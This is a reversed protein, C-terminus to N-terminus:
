PTIRRSVLLQLALPRIVYRNTGFVRVKRVGGDVGVRPGAFRVLSAHSAVVVSLRVFPVGNAIQGLNWFRRPIIFYLRLTVRLQILLRGQVLDFGLLDATAYRFLLFGAFDKPVHRLITTKYYDEFQVILKVRRDSLIVQQLQM